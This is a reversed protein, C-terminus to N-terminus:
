TGKAQFRSNISKSKKNGQYHESPTVTSKLRATLFPIRGELRRWRNAGQRRVSGWHDQEASPAM